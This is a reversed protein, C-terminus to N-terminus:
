LKAESQMLLLDKLVEGAHNAPKVEQYIKAIKGQTDILFSRRATGMYEKGMFKKKLWVGYLKVVDRKEDSLITFPLEYKTVFKDHSKVSDISVGLVVAKHSGFEGWADRLACAEATCGPTDDKPYFYLLIWKGRYDSLKRLEGNQDPLAFDPAEDGPKLHHKM